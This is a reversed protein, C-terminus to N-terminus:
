LLHTTLIINAQERILVTLEITSIKHLNIKIEMKHFKDNLDNQTQCTVSTVTGAKMQAKYGCIILKTFNSVRQM